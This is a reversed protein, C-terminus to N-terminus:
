PMPIRPPRVCIRTFPTMRGIVVVTVIGTGHGYKSLMEIAVFAIMRTDGKVTAIRAVISHRTASKGHRSITDTRRRSRKMVTPLVSDMSMPRRGAVLIVRVFAMSVLVPSCPIIAVMLFAFFSRRLLNGHVLLWLLRPWCSSVMTGAFGFAVVAVFVCRVMRGTLIFRFATATAALFPRVATSVFIVASLISSAVFRTWRMLIAILSTMPLYWWCLDCLGQWIMVSGQLQPGESGILLNLACGSGSTDLNVRISQLCRIHRVSFTGLDIRCGGRYPLCSIYELAPHFLFLIIPFIVRYLAPFPM